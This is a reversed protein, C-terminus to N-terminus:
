TPDCSCVRSPPRTPRTPRTPRLRAARRRGGVPYRLSTSERWSRPLGVGPPDGCEGVPAGVLGRTQGPRHCPQVQGREGALAPGAAISRSVAGPLRESRATMASWGSGRCVSGPDQRGHRGEDPAGLPLAGATRHTSPPDACTDLPVTPCPGTGSCRSTMPQLVARRSGCRVTEPPWSVHSLCPPIRQRLTRPRAEARMATSGDGGNNRGRPLLTTPLSGQRPTEM